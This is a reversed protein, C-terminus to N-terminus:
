NKLNLKGLETVQDAKIDILLPNNDANVVLVAEEATPGVVLIYRGPTINTIQFFDGAQLETKPNLSPELMFFGESTGDGYYSAAFVFVTAGSWRSAADIVQGSMAGKGPSPPTIVAPAPQSATQTSCSSLIVALLIILPIVSLIKRM